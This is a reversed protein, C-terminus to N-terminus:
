THAGLRPVKGLTCYKPNGHGWETVGRGVLNGTNNNQKPKVSVANPTQRRVRTAEYGTTGTSWAEKRGSAGRTCAIM